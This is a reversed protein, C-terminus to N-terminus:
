RARNGRDQPLSLPHMQNLRVVLVAGSAPRGHARRPAPRYPTREEFHRIVGVETRLILIALSQGDAARFAPTLKWGTRNIITREGIGAALRM